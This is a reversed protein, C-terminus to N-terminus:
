YTYDPNRKDREKNRIEVFRKHPIKHVEVEIMNIVLAGVIDRTQVHYNDAM